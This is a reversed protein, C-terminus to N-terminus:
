RTWLSRPPKWARATTPSVTLGPTTTECPTQHFLYVASPTLQLVVVLVRRVSRPAPAVKKSLRTSTPGQSQIAPLYGADRTYVFCATDAPTPQTVGHEANPIVASKPPRM